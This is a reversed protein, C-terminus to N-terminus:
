DKIKILNALTIYGISINEGVMQKLQAFADMKNSVVLLCKGFEIAEDISYKSFDIELSDFDISDNTSPHYSTPLLMKNIWFSRGIAHYNYVIENNNGRNIYNIEGKELLFVVPSINCREDIDIGAIYCMLEDAQKTCISMEKQFRLTFEKTSSFSSGKLRCFVKEVYYAVPLGELYGQGQACILYKGYYSFISRQKKQLFGNDKESNRIEALGDSVFVVGEPVFISIALGM